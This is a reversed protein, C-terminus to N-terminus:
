VLDLLGFGESRRFGIGNELLLQLDEREGELNFIGSYANIFMYQKNSNKTFDNFEQKIVQKKMRINTFKIREKLGYGRHNKLFMDSIYNLEEEFNDDTVGVPNNNKDKIHIPALTKFTELRNKVKNEKILAIKKKILTYENKYNFKDMKLLGNYFAIGLNYDSTSITVSIDGNVEIYNPNIKFDNLFTAFTFPKSKKNKKDGYFYMENFLEKDGNEIAYKLLSMMVTRYGMPVKKNESQLVLNLRM